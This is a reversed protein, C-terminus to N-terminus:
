GFLSKNYIKWCSNNIKKVLKHHLMKDKDLEYIVLRHKNAMTAEFELTRTFMDEAKLLSYALRLGQQNFEFQQGIKQNKNRKQARFDQSIQWGFEVSKTLNNSKGEQLSHFVELSEGRLALLLVTIKQKDTRAVSAGTAEFQRENISWSHKLNFDISM